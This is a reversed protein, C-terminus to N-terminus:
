RRIPCAVDKRGIHRRLGSAFCRMLDAIEPRPDLYCAVTMALVARSAAERSREAAFAPAGQAGHGELSGNQIRPECNVFPHRKPLSLDSISHIAAQGRKAAAEVYHGIVYADHTEPLNFIAGGRYAKVIGRIVRRAAPLRFLMFGTEPYKTARGIWGVTASLPMLRDLWETTVQAHTIIDADIWILM